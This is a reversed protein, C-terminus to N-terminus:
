GEQTDAKASGTIRMTMSFKIDQESILTDLPYNVDEFLADNELATAFNGLAKRDKAVGQLSIQAGEKGSASYIFVLLTINGNPIRALVENVLHIPSPDPNQISIELRGLKVNTDDIVDSPVVGIEQSIMDEVMKLDAASIRAQRASLLYPPALLLTSIIFLLAGLFLITTWRRLHYNKIIAQKTKVPILNSM